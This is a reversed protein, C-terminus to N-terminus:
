NEKCISLSRVEFTAGDECAYNVIRIILMYVNADTFSRMNVSENCCHHLLPIKCVLYVRVAKEHRRPFFCYYIICVCMKHM